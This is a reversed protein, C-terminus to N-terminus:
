TRLRFEMDMEFFASVNSVGAAGLSNIYGIWQFMIPATAGDVCVWASGPCDASTIPALKAPPRAVLTQYKQAFCVGSNQQTAGNVGPFLRFPGQSFTEELVQNPATAGGVSPDFGVAVAMSASNVAGPVTVWPLWHVKVAVLRAEDYLLAFDQFEPFTATALVVNNNITLATNAASTNVQEVSYLKVRIPKLGNFSKGKGGKAKGKHGVSQRMLTKMHSISVGSVIGDGQLRAPTDIDRDM